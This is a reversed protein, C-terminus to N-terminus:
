DEDAEDLVDAAPYGDETVVAKGTVAEISKVLSQQRAEFFGAFDDKVLFAPDVLHTRIHKAVADEDVEANKALRPLYASPATGGIIRNTRGTLPTKNVISNYTGRDINERECWAQPFIHHIDVAEAFYETIETKEGTRWDVAGEKMLLAYIGKYAASNRTRLTLLRSESFRADRITRPEAGTGRVWGVTEPLDHSFRTETSGGYLEGFVGCWYWRALKQQAGAPEAHAGLTSLIAALPILQTGYPLFKTDFLYQQRLFKAADKFGQVVLPAYRRYEGLGLELMDKRKCGIRPLREEDIGATAADARQAATAMLTVAQLFDTNSVQKLVRYEPAKWADRVVNNWHDRLDFEEAAYTATLLEFVTLTVGGTNVKEFVQCVAQRETRRGLEIVPVQYLEFPRIFAEEFDRWWKRGDKGQDKWYDEYGYSWDRNSFLQSLPFLRAAYEKEPTSYDEILDGRFSRVVRDAPLLRIADERDVQPDLAKVMDVYFWGTVRQKRQNQTEVPKGLMISQFLSTMRQQGDLILTDPETGPPPTAGEVPRCKFRVDGGTQLLMLTGVPYGRSISALLGIINHDPWVWGRQFEPLQAEGEAVRRLLKILQIKDIGFAQETM